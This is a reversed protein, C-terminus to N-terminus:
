HLLAPRQGGLVAALPYTNTFASRLPRIAREEGTSRLAESVLMVARESALREKKAVESARLCSVQVVNSKDAYGGFIVNIDIFYEEPTIVASTNPFTAGIAVYYAIQVEDEKSNLFAFQVDENRDIAYDSMEQLTLEGENCLEVLEPANNLADATCAGFGKITQGQTGPPFVGAYSDPVVAANDYGYSAKMQSLVEHSWAQVGLSGASCGMLVLENFKTLYSTQSKIWDLTMQVNVAGMQTVAEGKSDSYDRVVNGVHADGSCYLVQVITYESFPNTSPCNDRCFVGPDASTPDSYTTCLGAETSVKDWCAGGGQFYIRPFYYFTLVGCM